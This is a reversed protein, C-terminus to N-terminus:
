ATNVQYVLCDLSYPVYGGVEDLENYRLDYRVYFSWSWTENIDHTLGGYLLNENVRNWQSVPSAAYDHLDHDRGLYGGGM